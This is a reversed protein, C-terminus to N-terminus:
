VDRRAKNYIFYYKVVEIMAVNFVGVALIMLWVSLNLSVTSLVNQLFPLYVALLLLAFSLSVAWLLYLNAFPNLRWIPQRLSRLSFIAMLSKFGLMAFFVTRLYDIEAGLRYLWIFLGLIILDRVIGAGFIIAKMERNMIPEKKRIPKDSMINKDGKELALSFHPFGDNVINIWLIQAPLVALPMGCLVSGTILIVESFSDSILYTIVKRINSFIVRGQRVASVITKFNNDLLVIDSTEKAIDTGTGIALGIDAAKLAPSDNIGDGTMAVVEGSEQLANVIRLKHHPSVRAYIDIKKVLEKLKSDSIKDLKEGTIINETKVKMGVEMAVARATLQHDGTIIIPRIGATRCIMITEKAEPRLPDKLAIFGVFTLNKDILDWSVAKKQADKASKNFIDDFAPSLERIAVAIVRLGKNTLNEYTKNLKEREEATLKHKKGHHYFDSSKDLLREPAGKEYLTYGDKKKHLTIMYKKGSDFPLESIKPEIKLLQERNLGSQVAALLLASETPAGIIRWSSLEDDPNEIVADNCMMAAQLALSVQKAEETDQRSGLSKLEFEKEGIVIHAVNMKGETLTGTKDACIVTTSGLTEAAVLKRVLAKQKLIQQMGLVLIVTVAVALGEPVSAVALAVAVKFMELAGRGQIIGVAFVFFSVGALAMGLIRSFEALRSQLPTKEDETKSVMEAIKGIEMSKGVAYVVARGYGSVATTGAYVTNERDALSAGEAIPAISKASPISEGTLSSENVQLNASEILRADAPIRNGARIIIIDGITINGSDIEIERGERLVLAKHEVMKKLKSLANNAKNEQFFGIVTNIIVSAFIVGADTYDQLILTIFGAILLIYILPSKLQSILITIKRLPKEEALKNPGYKKIRKEAEERALGGISTKLEKFCSEIKKSHFDPM